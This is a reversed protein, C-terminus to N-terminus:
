EFKHKTAEYNQTVEAPTLAKNYVKVNSIKGNFFNRDGVNDSVCGISMTNVTTDNITKTRDVDVIFNDPQLVGDFYMIPKITDQIIVYNHWKGITVGASTDTLWVTGSATSPRVNSRVQGNFLFNNQYSQTSSNAFSFLVNNTITDTKFWISVSFESLTSYSSILSDLNIKDDVGDFDYAGNSVALGNVFSGTETPNTLNKTDTVNGGLNNAADVSFVLGDTVINLGGQTSM